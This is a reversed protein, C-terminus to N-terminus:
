IKNLKYRLTNNKFKASLIYIGSPGSNNIKLEQNGEIEGEYILQGLQNHLYIEAKHDWINNFYIYNSHPNPYPFPNNQPLESELKLVGSNTSKPTPYDKFTVWQASGDYKRGHSQDTEVAPFKIGDITTFSGNSKKYYLKLTEGNGSLKFPLHNDYQSTDGSAWLMLYGNGPVTLDKLHFLGPNSAKDSIYINTLDVNTGTPNYLEIWDSDDGNQDLVYNNKPMLENILIPAQSHLLHTYFSCPYNSSQGTIDSATWYYEIGSSTNSPQINGSYNGDGAIKDEGLGNDLLIASTWSSNGIERYNVSVQLSPSEDIAYVTAQLPGKNSKGSLLGGILVPKSNGSLFQNLAFTNRSSIYPNIGHDVHGGAGSTWSQWFDVSDYGYDYTYFVDDNIHNSVQSRIRLGKNIFNNTTIHQLIVKLLLQMKYQYEPISLLRQYLANYNAANGWNNINRSAWDKGVWDIGLTNDLDFPIYHILGDEPNQYLYFNNKNYAHNDWHGIAIEFALYYLYENVDFISELACPLNVISTNNLVAIFNSLDSYDDSMNNNKLDYARRGGSTFKYDNPDNSIYELTAPWLCKYLNGSDNGFRKLVFDDNIHEVNAYVGYYINNIFLKVHNTNASALGLDELLGWCIRARSVSPDNHEGNINLGKVGNWRRGSNYTNFSIKYSKKASYRSTNGRLRFGVDELTDKSGQYVFIFQSKYEKDSTVDNFIASLSDPPISIYISSVTQNDYAIQRPPNPISQGLITGISHGSLFMFFFIKRCSIKLIKM